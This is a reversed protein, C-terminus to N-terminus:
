SKYLFLEWAARGIQNRGTEWAAWTARTAYVLAAAQSQTLGAAKRMAALAGPAPLGPAPRGPDAMKFRFLEWAARTLRVDMDHREAAAWDMPRPLYVLAAAQTHTLGAAVRVARVEDRSPPVWAGATVPRSRAAFLVLRWLPARCQGSEWRHWALPKVGVLAAAQAQTLGAAKRMAALARPSGSPVSVTGAVLAAWAELQDRPDFTEWRKYTTLSVDLLMAASELSLGAGERIARFSSNIM